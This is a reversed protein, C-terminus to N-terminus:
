KLNEVHEERTKLKFDYKIVREKEKVDDLTVYESFEARKLKDLM